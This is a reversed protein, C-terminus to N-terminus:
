RQLHAFAHLHGLWPIGSVCFVGREPFAVLSVYSSWSSVLPFFLPFSLPSGAHPYGRRTLRQPPGVAGMASNRQEVAILIAGLIRARFGEFFVRPFDNQFINPASGGIRGKTAKPYKKRRRRPSTSSPRYLEYHPFASLFSMGDCRM